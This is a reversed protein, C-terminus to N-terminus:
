RNEGFIDNLLKYIENGHPFEGHKLIEALEGHDFWLGHNNVCSDLIINHDEALLYTVKNMKKNCMPCRRPAENVAAGDVARSVLEERNAADSLLLELEGADLWSGKCHICHDIEVQDLEVVIMPRDCCPCNM